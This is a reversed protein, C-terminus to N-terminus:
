NKYSFQHFQKSYNNAFGQFLQQQENNENYDEDDDDDDDDSNDSENGSYFAGKGDSFEVLWGRQQIYYSGRDTEVSNQRRKVPIYKEKIM